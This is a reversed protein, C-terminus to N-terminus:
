TTLGHDRRDRAGSPGRGAAGAGSGGAADPRAAGVGSGPRDAAPEGVCVPPGLGPCAPSPHARMRCSGPFATMSGNPLCPACFFTCTSGPAPGDAPRGGPGGQGVGVLAKRSVADRGTERGDAAAGGLRGFSALASCTSMAQGVLVGVAVGLARHGQGPAGRAERGRRDRASGGIHVAQETLAGTAVPPHNAVGPVAVTIRSRGGTM